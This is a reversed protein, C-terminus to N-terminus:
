NMARKERGREHGRDVLEAQLFQEGQAVTASSIRHTKMCAHCLGVDVGGRPRGSSVKCV